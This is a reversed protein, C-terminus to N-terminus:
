SLMQGGLHQNDPPHGRSWDCTLDTEIRRIRLRIISWKGVTCDLVAALKINTDFVTQGVNYYSKSIILPNSGIGDEM